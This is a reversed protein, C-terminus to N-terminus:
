THAVSSACGAERRAPGLMLRAGRRAAATSAGPGCPGQAKVLSRLLLSASPTGAGSAPESRDVVPRNGPTWRPDRQEDGGGESGDDPCSVDRGV